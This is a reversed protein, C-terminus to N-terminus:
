PASKLAAILDGASLRHRFTDVGNVAIVPVDWGYRRVLDRNRDINVVELDFAFQGRAQEIVAHAQDCLHCGARTYLTVVAM